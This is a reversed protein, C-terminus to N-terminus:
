PTGSDPVEGGPTGSDPVDGELTGGDAPPEVAPEPARECGPLVVLLVTLLWSSLIRFMNAESRTGRDVRGVNLFSDYSLCERRSRAILWSHPEGNMLLYLVSPREQRSPGPAGARAGAQECLGRM